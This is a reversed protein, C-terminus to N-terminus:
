CTVGPEEPYLWFGRVAKGGADPDWMTDTCGTALRVPHRLVSWTERTGKRGPDAWEKPPWTGGSHRVNSGRPEWATIHAERLRQRARLKAVQETQLNGRTMPASWPGGPRHQGPSEFTALHRLREDPSNRSLVNKERTRVTRSVVRRPHRPLLGRGALDAPM